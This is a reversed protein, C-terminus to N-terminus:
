LARLRTDAAEVTWEEDYPPASFVTAFIEACTTIDLGTVRRIRIPLSSRDIERM